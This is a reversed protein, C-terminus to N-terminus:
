FKWYKLAKRLKFNRLFNYPKKKLHKPKDRLLEEVSDLVRQSSKGDQYPHFHRIFQEVKKDLSPKHELTHVLKAELTEVDETNIFCAEKKEAQFTIVPKRQTLFEYVISSNDCLMVDSKKFYQILEITHIYRVNKARIGQYLDVIDKPMKPHLTIYWQYPYKKVMMLIFPYLEKAKTFRPSFTSAFFISKEKKALYTNELPFLPDLKCWGTEKVIFSQYKQALIQFKATSSEGQTCYLDFMERIIFHYIQGNKKRKNGPLGHFVQVKLGSIFSPVVNGTVFVADPKYVMVEEIEQLREEGDKYFHEHIECGYSFWKVRDGRQRIAQELPRLIAFSYDQSIFFLYKKPM